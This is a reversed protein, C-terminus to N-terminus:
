YRRGGRPQAGPNLSVFAQIGGDISTAVEAAIVAGRASFLTLAGGFGVRPDDLSLDDLGAFVRGVDVFVSPALWRAAAWRYTAQGVVAVRDRFRATEYGRLLWPGGLKPLETFAVEDRDGTIAEGYVRLALARPGLSLRFIRQADFGYRVFGPAGDAIDQQYGAFGAVFTGAGIMGPADWDAVQHRSDYALELESEIYTTGAAFGPVEDIQFVRDIADSSAADREFRKRVVAVRTTTSLNAPLRWAIQSVARMADDIFASRAAPGAFPDLPMTPEILEGNGIGYFREDDTRDYHVAIGYATRERAIAFSQGFHLQNRGGFALRTTFEEGGGFLNTFRARVGANFGFGTEFLATPYIAIKNDHSTFTQRVHGSLDYRGQLYMLGRVPQAVILFPLRIVWLAARGIRRAVSDGPDLPDLRGHADGPLPADHVDAATLPLEAPRPPAPEVVDRDRDRDRDDQPPPEGAAVPDAHAVRLASLLGAIAVLRVGRIM